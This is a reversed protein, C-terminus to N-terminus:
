RNVQETRQKRMMKTRSDPLWGGAEHSWAKAAICEANELLAHRRSYPSVLKRRSWAVFRLASDRESEIAVDYSGPSAPLARPTECDGRSPDVCIEGVESGEASDYRYTKRALVTM